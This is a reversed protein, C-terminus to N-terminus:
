PVMRLFYVCVSRWSISTNGTTMIPMTRCEVNLDVNLFGNFKAHAIM